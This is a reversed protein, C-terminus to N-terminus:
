VNSIQIMMNSCDIQKQISIHTGTANFSRTKLNNILPHFHQFPHNLNVFFFFQTLEICKTHVYYDLRNSTLTITFTCRSDKLIEM